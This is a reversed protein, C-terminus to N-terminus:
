RIIIYAGLLLVGAGIFYLKNQEKRSKELIDIEAQSFQTDLIDASEELKQFEIEELCSLRTFRKQLELRESSYKKILDGYSKGKVNKKTLDAILVDYRTIKQDLDACITFTNTKNIGLNNINTASNEADSRNQQINRIKDILKKM